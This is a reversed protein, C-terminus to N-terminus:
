NATARNTRIIQSLRISLALHTIRPNANRDLQLLTDNLEIYILDLGQFNVAGSFKSIFEKEEGESKVLTPDGQTLISNRILEVGFLILNRQSSKSLQNFDESLITLTDFKALLCARMWEQFSNFELEAASQLENLAKHISGNALRSVKNANQAPIGHHHILYYAIDEDALSPVLVLQTRSLITTLLDEYNYTVLFYLTNEPPEELVKLIANAAAPHMKEPYWIILIKLGGEFSKMSVTKIIRKADDKSIQNQKNETEIRSIFDSLDGFPSDNVFQRWIEAQKGATNEKSKEAKSAPFFYHVDPHIIKAMKQCSSCVGCADSEAKDECLLYTAFALAM